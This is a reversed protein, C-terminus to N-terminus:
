EATQQECRFHINVTTGENIKSEIDMKGGMEKILDKCIVLGLGSGSSANGRNKTSFYLDAAKELVDFSMGVGNDAISLRVGDPEMHTSVQIKKETRWYCEVLADAANVLINLLVQLMKGENFKIAPIDRNLHYGLSINLMRKDYKMLNCARVILDNLNHYEVTSTTDRFLGTFELKINNIRRAENLMRNTMDIMATKSDADLQDETLMVLMYELGGEIAVMPSGMEHMASAILKSKTSLQQAQSFSNSFMMRETENILHFCFSDKYFVSRQLRFVTDPYKKSKYLLSSNNILLQLTIEPEQVDPDHFQILEDIQEGQVSRMTLDLMENAKGNSRLVEGDENLVLTPLSTSTIWDLDLRFKRLHWVLLLLWLILLGLCSIIIYSSLQENAALVPLPLLTFALASKIGTKSM